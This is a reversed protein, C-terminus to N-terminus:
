MCYIAPTYSRSINSRIELQLRKNYSRVKGVRSLSEQGLLRSSQGLGLDVAILILVSQILYIVQPANFNAITNRHETTLSVTGVFLVTDDLYQGIRSANWLRIAAFILVFVLTCGSSISAYGGHDDQTIPHLAQTYGDPLNTTM